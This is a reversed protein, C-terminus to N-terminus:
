VTQIGARLGTRTTSVTSTSQVSRPLAGRDKPYQSQLTFSYLNASALDLAKLIDESNSWCVTPKPTPGGHHMM